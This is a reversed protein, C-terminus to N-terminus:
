YCDPNNQYEANSREPYARKAMLLGQAAYDKLDQTVPRSFPVCLDISLQGSLARYWEAPFDVDNTTASMDEVYSMYVLRIVETLDSPQCDLYLKANTRKAEFYLDQPTGLASKSSIAEHEELLASVRLPFDDGNTDRLSATEIEFPRHIKSTYAFVRAGASAAGTLVATLTVVAGAPAGNITTWQFAGSDLLIGIRGGSAFGTASVLTVTGAGVSESSALTSTVYTESACEDGTPGLSYVTQSAQPFLFGRRRTWMKLGPAFDIQAAWQKILMNLKRRAVVYDEAAISTEAAGIAGINQMADTIIDLETVSYSTTGSTAM